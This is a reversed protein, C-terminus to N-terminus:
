SRLRLRMRLQAVTEQSGLRGLAALTRPASAPINLAFLQDLALCLLRHVLGDPDAAWDAAGAQYVTASAARGDEGYRRRILAWAATEGAARRLVVARGDRVSQWQCQWPAEQGYCPIGALAPPEVEDLLYPAASVSEGIAGARRLVSLRDVEAYGLSRYLAIARANDTVAELEAEDAGAARCGALAARMLRRGIGSGRHTPAVATGGCYATRRCAVSRVGSVACGAPQGEVYAVFSLEPHLKM